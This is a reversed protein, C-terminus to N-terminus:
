QTKGSSLKKKVAVRDSMVREFEAKSSANGKDAENALTTLYLLYDVNLDKNKYADHSLVNIQKMRDTKLQLEIPVGNQEVIFHYARYGDNPNEYYDDFETVKGFMGKEVRKKFKVLDDFNNFAVTTGVLDKLGRRQDLLRSSVLKNLISYPTKTRGYIKSDNPAVKQLKGLFEELEVDMKDKVRIVNNVAKSLKTQEVSAGDGRQLPNPDDANPLGDLDFDDLVGKYLNKDFKVDKNEIKVEAKGGNKMMGRKKKPFYAFQKEFDKRKAVGHNIVKDDDDLIDFVYAEQGISYSVVRVSNGEFMGEDGKVYSYKGNPLMGGDAMKKTALFSNGEKEYLRYMESKAENETDFGQSVVNGDKVDVVYYKANTQGGESYKDSINIFKAKQGKKSFEAKGESMAEETLFYVMQNELNIKVFPIYGGIKSTESEWRFIYENPKLKIDKLLNQDFEDLAYLYRTDNDKPLEFNGVGEGGTREHKSKKRIKYIDDEKFRKTYGGYAMKGQQQRYVKAAVKRGVEMAEKSDYTKGYEDQYKPEVKKGSYRKAVKKALGEFGIEGGGKFVATPSGGWSSLSTQMGQSIMPSSSSQLMGGINYKKYKAKM